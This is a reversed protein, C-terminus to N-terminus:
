WDLSKEDLEFGGPLEVGDMLKIFRQRQEDNDM